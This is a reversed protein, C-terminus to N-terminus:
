VLAKIGVLLQSIKVLNNIVENVTKKDSYKNGSFLLALGKETIMVSYPLISIDEVAGYDHIYRNRRLWEYIGGLGYDSIDVTSFDVSRDPDNKLIITLKLIEYIEKKQLPKIEGEAIYWKGDVKKCVLIKKKRCYSAVTRPNVHWQNAIVKTSYYRVGDIEIRESM